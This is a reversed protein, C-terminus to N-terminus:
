ISDTKSFDLVIEQNNEINLQRKQLLLNNYFEYSTLKRPVEIYKSYMNNRERRM